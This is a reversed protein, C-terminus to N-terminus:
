CPLPRYRPRPAALLADRDRGHRADAISQPRGDGGREAVVREGRVQRDTISGRGTAAEALDHTGSGSAAPGSSRRCAGRGMVSPPTAVPCADAHQRTGGTHHGPRDSRRGPVCRGIRPGPGGSADPGRSGRPATAGRRRSGDPQRPRRVSRVSTRGTGRRRMLCAMRTPSRGGGGTGTTGGDPPRTAVRVAGARARCERPRVGRAPGDRDGARGGERGGLDLGTGPPDRDPAVGRGTARGHGPCRAAPRGPGLALLAPIAGANGGIVDLVHPATVGAAVKALLGDVPEDSRPRAPSPRSGTWPSRRGSWAPTTRYRSGAARPSRELMGSRAPPRRSPRGGSNPTAPRPGWSAGPVLGGRSERRVPRPRARGLDSHRPRRARHDRESLSGDLQVAARGRGLDGGPLPGPRDGGGSVPVIGSGDTAANM